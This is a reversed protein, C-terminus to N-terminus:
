KLLVEPCKVNYYLWREELIPVTVSILPLIDMTKFLSKINVSRHYQINWKREILLFTPANEFVSLQWLPASSYNNESGQFHSQTGHLLIGRSCKVKHFMETKWSLAINYLLWFNISIRPFNFDMHVWPLSM